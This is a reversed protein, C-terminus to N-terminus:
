QGINKIATISLVTSFPQSILTFTPLLQNILVNWSAIPTRPVFIIDNPKLYQDIRKNGELLLQRLDVTYIETVEPTARIVAAQEYLANDTWGGAQAILQAM